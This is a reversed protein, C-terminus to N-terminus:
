QRFIVDPIRQTLRSVVRNFAKEQEAPPKASVEVKGDRMRYGAYGGRSGGSGGGGGGYSGSGM